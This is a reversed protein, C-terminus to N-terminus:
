RRPLKRFIAQEGSPSGSVVEWTPDANLIPFLRTDRESPVGHRFAKVFDQGNRVMLGNGWIIGSVNDIVIWEADSPIQPRGEKWELLRVDRTFGEGWLPALWTQYTCDSVVVARPGALRDFVCPMRNPGVMVWRRKEPHQWLDELYVYPAVMDHEYASRAAGVLLLVAIGGFIWPRRAQALLPLFGTALITPMLFLIFRPFTSFGVVNAYAHALLFWALLASTGLCFWQEQPFNGAPGRRFCGAVLVGVGVLLAPGFLWGFHSYILNYEPWYWEMGSSLRVTYDTSLFPALSVLWLFRFPDGLSFTHASPSLQTAIGAMGHSAPQSHYWLYLAKVGGMALAAAVSHGIARLLIPVWLSRDRGVLLSWRLYVAFLLPPALMWGSKKVNFLAFLVWIALEGPRLSEELWTRATWFIGLLILLITLLDAKDSAMHLLFVPASAFLLVGTWVHLGPGSWRRFQIGVVALIGGAVLTSLWETIRDTGTLSLMSAVLLEYTHPDSFHLLWEAQPPKSWDLGHALHYRISIPMSWALADSNACPLVWGKFLNYAMLLGIVGLFLWEARLSRLMTIAGSLSARLPLPHRKIIRTTVLGMLVAAGMLGFPRLLHFAALVWGVGIWLLFFRTIGKLWSLGWADGQPKLSDAREAITWSGALAAMSLLFVALMM